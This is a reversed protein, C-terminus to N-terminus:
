RAPEARRDAAGKPLAGEIARLRARLEALEADQRAVRDELDQVKTHLEKVAAASYITLPYTDVQLIPSGDALKEGSPQVWEPFVTQFQQAIVNLYRRDGIEPHAARYEPTYLFSVLDVRDLTGLADAVPRIDQKIRADSNAAWSGATSKSAGGSVELRNATPTRGIGVLGTPDIIMQTDNTGTRFSMGTANTYYVGGAFGSLPSGFALGKENADPTLLQLYNTGGREFVASASSSPTAGSSATFVHLRAAPAQTGIGIHSLASVSLAINDNGDVLSEHTHDAHAAAQSAGNGGLARVDDVGDMFDEPMHLLGDWEATSAYHAKSAVLAHQSSVLRQRPLLATFPQGSGTPRVRAEVFLDQGNTIDPDLRLPCTFLGDAVAVGPNTTVALSTGGSAVKFTALEVDFQGNAPAGASTLRGQYTSVAFTADPSVRITATGDSNTSSSAVRILISTAVGLRSPHNVHLTASGSSFPTESCALPADAAGLSCGRDQYVSIVPRTMPSAGSPSVVTIMLSESVACRFWVDHLGPHCDLPMNTTTAGATTFALEAGNPSLDIPFCPSDNTVQALASSAVTALTGLSCLVLSAVRM